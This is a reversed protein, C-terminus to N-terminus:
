VTIGMVCIDDIQEYETGIWNMLKRKLAVRQHHMSTSHTDYLLKRFNKSMFKNGNEGGFQDQYGDSYLYLADVDELNIIHNTYTSELVKSKRGGISFPDAKIVTLNAESGGRKRRKHIYVLPNKAGAFEMMGVAEDIVVVAIDMGDRNGTTDQKLIHRIEKQLEDLIKSPTTIQRQLIIENLITTGLLSMFAGPVGHGTCDGVIAIKRSDDIKEYWYFDGSVIDKPEFFIFADKFIDKVEQTGGLMASQIRQAYNVSSLFNNNQKEILKSKQEAEKKVLETKTIDQLTGRMCILNGNEDFVPYGRERIYFVDEKPTNIQYIEDFKTKSTIAKAWGENAEELNKGKMWQQFEETDYPIDQPLINFIESFSESWKIKKSYIDMEYSVIKALKQAEDLYKKNTSIEDLLKQMEQNKLVEETIEQVTGILSDPEKNENYKIFTFSEYYKWDDEQNPRARYTVFINSKQQELAVKVKHRNQELDDPHTIQAFIERNIRKGKPFGYILPLNESHTITDTKFRRIYSGMRAMEEARNLLQQKEESERQSIFLNENISQLEESNQRLEEESALLEAQKSQSNELLKKIENEKQVTETIDQLVNVVYDLREDEDLVIHTAGQFWHWDEFNETKLRFRYFVDKKHTIAEQRKEFVEEKDDHHIYEAILKNTIVINEDLKLLYNLHETHAIKGTVIDFDYAALKAMKKAERVRNIYTKLTHESIKLNDNMASLEEANQRIEEESAQLEENQTSLEANADEVDVFAQKVKKVMPHMGFFSLSVAFLFVFLAVIGQVWRLRVVKAQGEQDYTFVITNMIPLFAREHKEIHEFNKALNEARKASNPLINAVLLNDVSKILGQYHPELSDYLHKINDSLMYNDSFGLSNSKKTLNQHSEKFTDLAKNLSKIHSAQAEGRTITMYVSHKAIRQSLMRQRGSINIVSADDQQKALFNQLVFFSIAMLIGILVPAFITATQMRRILKANYSDNSQLTRVQHRSHVKQSYTDSM